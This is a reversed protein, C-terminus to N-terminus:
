QDKNSNELEHWLKICNRGANKAEYLAQDARDILIDIGPPPASFKEYSAIGMSVTISCSGQSTTVEMNEIEKRLREAMLLSAESDTEPMLILFEEGGYRALVDVNRLIKQCLNVLACLVQDGVPHGYKDNFSKFHDIDLMVISVSRQYRTVRKLEKRALEVFHRRNFCGTLSDQTALRQTKQYLEVRKTVDTAVFVVRSHGDSFKGMSAIRGEFWREEGSVVPIKYDVVQTEETEIARHIASMITKAEDPAMVDKLLQGKLGEVKTLLLEPENALIELYRGEDDYIFSLNPMANIFARLTNERDKLRERSVTLAEVKKELESNAIRLQDRLRQNALHANVRALVEKVEIPKPIYDAAGVKFARIKDETDDLASIFIIPINNTRDDAKLKECTEFGDMVPMSVDLLIMDPIKEHAMNIATAGDEAMQVKYGSSSLIRSLLTLNSPTDDVVLIAGQIVDNDNSPSSSNM